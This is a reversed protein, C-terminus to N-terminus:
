ETRTPHKSRVVKQTAELLYKPSLAIVSVSEACLMSQTFWASFLSTLQTSGEKWVICLEPLPQIFMFISVLAAERGMAHNAFSFLMPPCVGNRPAHM